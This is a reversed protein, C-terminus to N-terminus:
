LSEKSWQIVSKKFDIHYKLGRLFNMGLLGNYDNRAQGQYEVVDFRLNEKRHPGAQIYDLKSTLIDIEMGGAVRAKAPKFDNIALGAVAYDHLVISGAGTDLLLTTQIERGQYGLIVPVLVRNGDIHVPTIFVKAATKKKLPQMLGKEGPRFIQIEALKFNGSAVLPEWIFIHNLSKLITKLGQELDKNQLTVTIEPNIQRDIKVVVGQNIFEQLIEQLPVAQAKVSLKDTTIQIELNDIGAWVPNLFFTLLILITTNFFRIM